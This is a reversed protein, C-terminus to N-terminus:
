SVIITEGNPRYSHAFFLRALSSYDLLLCGERLIFFADEDIARRPRSTPCNVLGARCIRRSTKFIAEKDEKGRWLRYRSLHSNKYCHMGSYVDLIWMDLTTLCTLMYENM